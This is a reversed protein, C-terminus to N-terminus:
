MVVDDRDFTTRTYHWSSSNSFGGFRVGEVVARERGDARPPQSKALAERLKAPDHLTKLWTLYGAHAKRQRKARPCTLQQLRGTNPLRALRDVHRPEYVIEEVGVPAFKNRRPREEDDAPGPWFDGDMVGAVLRCEFRTHCCLPNICGGSREQSTAGAGLDDDQCFQEMYVDDLDFRAAVHAPALACALSPFWTGGVVVGVADAGGDILEKLDVEGDDEDEAVEYDPDEDDAGEHQELLERTRKMRRPGRASWLCWIAQDVHVRRLTTERTHELYTVAVRILEDFPESDELIPMDAIRRRPYPDPALDHCILSGRRLITIQRAETRCHSLVVHLKEVADLDLVVDNRHDRTQYVLAYCFSAPAFRVGCLRALRHFVTELHALSAPLPADRQGAALIEKIAREAEARCIAHLQRSTCALRALVRASLKRPVLSLLDEHLDM